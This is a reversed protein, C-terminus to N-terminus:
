TIDSTAAAAFSGRLLHGALAGQLDFGPEADLAIMAAEGLATGAALAGVLAADGPSLRHAEVALAPRLVLVAEGGAALDVSPVEEHEPQNADWIAQVPWPSIVLRASPHLTLVLAPIAEPALGHLDGATLPPADAAFLAETRAWELRAVDALYPVPGAPPFAALFDPFGGGYSLLQPVAPPHGAVYARAAFRFFGDGVLRHVVPFAAALVETLSGLVNNRYVAFRAGAPIHDDVLAVGEPVAGVPAATDLVGRRVAEQLERLM